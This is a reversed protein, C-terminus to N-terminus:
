SVEDNKKEENKQKKVSQSPLLQQMSASQTHLSASPNEYVQVRNNFEDAVILHNTGAQLCLGHANEFQHRGQGRSGFCALFQLFSSHHPTTIM